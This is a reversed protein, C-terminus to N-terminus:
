SRKKGSRPPLENVSRVSLRAEPVNSALIQLDDPDSTMVTSGPYRAATAVVIADVTEDRRRSRHRLAGADRAIGATTDLISREGPIVRHIRADTPQGTLTEALVPAPIGVLLQNETAEDLWAMMRPEGDALASLAGSDLILRRKAM